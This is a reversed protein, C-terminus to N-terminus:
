GVRAGLRGEAGQKGAGEAGEGGARVGLGQGGGVEVGDAQVVLAAGLGAVDQRGDHGHDIVAAEGVAALADPVADHRERCQPVDLLPLLETIRVNAYPHDVVVLAATAATAAASFRSNPVRPSERAPAEPAHDLRPDLRPSPCSSCSSLSIRLPHRPQLLEVVLVHAGAASHAHRDVSRGPPLANAVFRADISPGDATRPPRCRM